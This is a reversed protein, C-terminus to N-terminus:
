VPPRLSVIGTKLYERVSGALDIKSKRLGFKFKVNEWFSAPQPNITEFLKQGMLHPPWLVNTNWVASTALQGYVKAGLQKGLEELMEEAGIAYVSVRRIEGKGSVFVYFWDDVFPGESTTYEGVLKIQKIPITQLQEGKYTEWVIHGDRIFTRGSIEEQTNDATMSFKSVGKSAPIRKQRLVAKLDGIQSLEFRPSLLGTKMAVKMVVAVYKGMEEPKEVLHIKTIYPDGM